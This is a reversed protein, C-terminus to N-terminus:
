SSSRQWSKLRPRGQQVMQEKYSGNYCRQCLNITHAEGGEEVVVSAIQWYRSLKKIADITAGIIPRRPESLASPVFAIDEAEEQGVALTECVHDQAEESEM